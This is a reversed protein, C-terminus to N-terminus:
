TTYYVISLMRMPYNIFPVSVINTFTPIKIRSVCYMFVMIEAIM